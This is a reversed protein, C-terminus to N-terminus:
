FSCPHYALLSRLLHWFLVGRYFGIDVEVLGQWGCYQGYSMREHPDGGNRVSAHWRGNRSGLLVVMRSYIFYTHPKILFINPNQGLDYETQVYFLTGSGRCFAYVAMTKCVQPIWTDLFFFISEKRHPEMRGAGRTSPGSLASRLLTAPNPTTGSDWLERTHTGRWNIDRTGRTGDDQLSRAYQALATSKRATACVMASLSTSVGLASPDQCTPAVCAQNQPTLWSQRPGICQGLCNRVDHQPINSAVRINYESYPVMINTADTLAQSAEDQKGM